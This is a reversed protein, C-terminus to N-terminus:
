LKEKLKQIEDHLREVEAHLGKVIMPMVREQVNYPLPIPISGSPNKLLVEFKVGRVRNNDILKAFRDHRGAIDKMENSLEGLKMIIAWVAEADPQLNSLDPEDSM